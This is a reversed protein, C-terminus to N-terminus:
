YVRCAAPGRGRMARGAVSSTTSAEVRPASDIECSWFRSICGLETEEGVLQSIQEKLDVEAVGGDLHM